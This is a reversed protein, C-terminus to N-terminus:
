IVMDDFEHFFRFTSSDIPVFVSLKKAITIIILAYASSLMFGYIFKQLTYCDYSQINRYLEKLKTLVM